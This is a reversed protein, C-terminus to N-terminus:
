PIIDFEDMIRSYYYVSNVVKQAVKPAMVTLVPLRTDLITDLTTYANIVDKKDSMMLGWLKM